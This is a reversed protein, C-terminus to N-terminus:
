SILLSYKAQDSQYEKMLLLYVISKPIIKRQNEKWLEPTGEDSIECVNYIKKDKSYYGYIM